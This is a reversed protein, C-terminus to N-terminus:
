VHPSIDVCHAATLLSDAGVLTASCGTAFNAFLSAPYESAPDTVERGLHLFLVLRKLPPRLRSVPEFIIRQESGFPLGLAIMAGVLVAAVILRRRTAM